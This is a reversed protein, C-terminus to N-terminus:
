VLAVGGRRGFERNIRSGVMEALNQHQSPTPTHLTPDEKDGCISYRFGHLHFWKVAERDFDLTGPRMSYNTATYSKTGEQGDTQKWKTEEVPMERFTQLPVMLTNRPSAAELVTPPSAWRFGLPPVEQAPDTTPAPLTPVPPVPRPAIWVPQSLPTPARAPTRPIPHLEAAPASRKAKFKKRWEKWGCSAGHTGSQVITVQSFTKNNTKDSKKDSKKNESGGRELMDLCGQIGTLKSDMGKLQMALFSFQADDLERGDRVAAAMNVRLQERGYQNVEAVMKLMSAEMNLGLQRGLEVVHDMDPNHPEPVVATYGTSTSRAVGM